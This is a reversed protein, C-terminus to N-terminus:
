KETINFTSVIVNSLRDVEKETEPSVRKSTILTLLQYPDGNGDTENTLERAEVAEDESAVTSLIRRYSTGTQISICHKM